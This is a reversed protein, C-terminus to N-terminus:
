LQFLNDTTLQWNDTFVFFLERGEVMQDLRVTESFLNDEFRTQGVRRSREPCAKRGVGHM